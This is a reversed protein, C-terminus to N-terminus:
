RKIKKKYSKGNNKKLALFRIILTLKDKIKKIELYIFITYFSVFLLALSLLLEFESIDYYNLIIKRLDESFFILINLILTSIFTVIFIARAKASNNEKIFFFCLLILIALFIIKFM